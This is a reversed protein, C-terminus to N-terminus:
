AHNRDRAIAAKARAARAAQKFLLVLMPRDASIAKAAEDLAEACLDLENALDDVLGTLTRRRPQGAHRCSAATQEVLRAFMHAAAHDAVSM